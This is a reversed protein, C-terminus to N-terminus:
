ARKPIAWQKVPVSPGEAMVEPADAGLLESMEDPTESYEDAMEDGLTNEKSSKRGKKAKTKKKTPSSYEDGVEMYVNNEGLAGRVKQYFEDVEEPSMDYDLNFLVDDTERGDQKRKIKPM